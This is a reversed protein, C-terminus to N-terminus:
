LLSIYDLHWILWAHLHNEGISVLVNEMKKKLKSEAGREADSKDSQFSTWRMVEASRSDRCCSNCSPEGMIRESDMGESAQSKM